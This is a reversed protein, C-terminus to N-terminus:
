RANGVTFELPEIPSGEFSQSRDCSLVVLRVRSPTSQPGSCFPRFPNTCDLGSWSPPTLEEGGRLVLCGTREGHEKSRSLYARESTTRWSGDNGQVQVRVSLLLSIPEVKKNIVKFEGPKKLNCVVVTNNPFVNSQCGDDKEGSQPPQPPQPSATSSPAPRSFSRGSACAVAIAAVSGLCSLRTWGGVRHAGRGHRRQQKEVAQTALDDGQPATDSRYITM